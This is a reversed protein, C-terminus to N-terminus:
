AVLAWQCDAVPKAALHIPGAVGRNRPLRSPSSPRGALAASAALRIQKPEGLTLTDAASEAARGPSRRRPGLWDGVRGASRRQHQRKASRGAGASHGGVGGSAAVAAATSASFSHSCTRTPQGSSRLRSSGSRPRRRRSGPRRPSGSRPSRRGPRRGSAGSSPTRSRGPSTRRGPRVPRRRTSGDPGGPAGARDRRAPRGSGGPPRTGPRRRGAPDGSRTGAPRGPRRGDQRSRPRAVLGRQGGDEPGLDAAVGVVEEGRVRPPGPQGPPVLQPREEVSEVGADPVAPVWLDAGGLLHEPEPRRHERPRGGLEAVLGRDMQQGVPPPPGVEAAPPDAAAVVVLDGVVLLGAAGTWPNVVLGARDAVGLQISLTLHHRRDLVAPDPGRQGPIASMVRGGRSSTGPAAIRLLSADLADSGFSQAYAGARESWGQDVIAAAIEDRVASWSASGTPTWWDKSRGATRARDMAVWCMLKSYVFPRPEGRDEWLGHDDETWREAATDVAPETLFSRTTPELNGLQDRSPTRPTSWRGTCTSSPRGGRPTASGSRRAAGGGPWTRWSASPRPRARWRSRHRAAARPRTRAPGHGGPDPLRLLAKGRGPVGGGVPGAPDHERGAGLHLPLGLHPQQRGRGAPQHHGRRGGGRDPRPHTGPPGGWQAPGARAAPGRVGSAARVLLALRRRHRGLRRRIQRASWPEPAPDFADAVEVAFSRQEGAHLVPRATAGDDSLVFGIETSLLISPAAITTRERCFQQRVVDRRDRQRRSPRVNSWVERGRRAAGRPHQPRGYATLPAVDDARGQQGDPVLQGLRRHRDHDAHDQVPRDAGAVPRRQREPERDHDADEHDQGAAPGDPVPQHVPGPQAGPAVDAYPDRRPDEVGGAPRRPPGAFLDAQGAGVGVPGALDDGRVGPDVLASAASTAPLATSNAAEGTSASATSVPTGTTSTADRSSARGSTPRASRSCPVRAAAVAAAVSRTVPSRTSFPM